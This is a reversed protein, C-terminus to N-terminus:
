PWELAIIEKYDSLCHKHFYYEEVTKYDDHEFEECNWYLTGKRSGCGHCKMEGLTADRCEACVHKGPRGFDTIATTTKRCKPCPYQVSYKPPRRAPDGGKIGKFPSETNSM